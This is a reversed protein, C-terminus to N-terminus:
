DFERIDLRSFGVGRLQAAELAERLEASCVIYRPGKWLRFLHLDAPLNDKFAFLDGVSYSAGASSMDRGLKSNSEDVVDEFRIVDCLFRQPLEIDEGRKPRVLVKAPALDISTAAYRLLVERAPASIIWFASGNEVDRVRRKSHLQYVIRDPPADPPFGSGLSTLMIGLSPLHPAIYPGARNGARSSEWDIIEPSRGLGGPDLRVRFFNTLPKMDFSNLLIRRWSRVDAM